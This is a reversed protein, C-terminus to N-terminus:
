YGGPAENRNGVIWDLGGHRRNRANEINEKEM